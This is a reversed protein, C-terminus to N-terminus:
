ITERKSPSINIHKNTCESLIGEKGLHQVEKNFQPNGNKDTYLLELKHDVLRNEGATLNYLNLDFSITETNGAKISDYRWEVVTTDGTSTVNYPTKTASSLVFEVDKTPITDIVRVNAGATTIDKSIKIIQGLQNEVVYLNGKSDFEIDYPTHFGTAFLTVAKTVPDLTYIAKTMYDIVYLYGEPGWTIAFPYQFASSYLSKVGSPTYSWIKTWESSSASGVVLLNGEKDFLMDVPNYINTIFKVSTTNSLNVKLIDRPTWTDGMYLYGDQGFTLGAIDYFINPSLFQRAIKQVVGDPTIKYLTDLVDGFPNFPNDYWGVVATYLNGNTDFDIKAPYGPAYDLPLGPGSKAFVSVAGDQTIKLIRDKDKASEVVFLEDMKNAKICVPTGIGSAFVEEM